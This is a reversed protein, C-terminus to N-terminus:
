PRFTINDEVITRAKLYLYRLDETLMQELAEASMSFKGHKPKNEGSRLIASPHYSPWLTFEECKLDQYGDRIASALAKKMQGETRAGYDEGTVTVCREYRYKLTPVEVFHRKQRSKGVTKAQPLFFNIASMGLPVIFVPRYKSIALELYRRCATIEDAKPPRVGKRHNREDKWPVCRVINEFRCWSQPIGINELIENLKKGAPGVFPENKKDEKRGPAEGVFM